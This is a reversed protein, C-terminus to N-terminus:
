DGQQPGERAAQEVLRRTSSDRSFLEYLKNWEIEYAVLSPIVDDLDSPSSILIAVREGGDYLQRRRRAPATQPRWNTLDFGRSEIAEISTSLLVLRVSPMSPPLRLGVYTLAAADPQTERARGHLTSDM